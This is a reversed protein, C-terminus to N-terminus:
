LYFVSRTQVTSTTGQNNEITEEGDNGCLQSNPTIPRVPPANELLGSPLTVHTAVSSISISSVDESLKNIVAEEQKGNDNDNATAARKGMVIGVSPLFDSENCQQVLQSTAHENTHQQYSNYDSGESDLTDSDSDVAVSQLQGSGVLFKPKELAEWCKDVKDNGGKDADNINVTVGAQYTITKTKFVKRTKNRNPSLTDSLKSVQDAMNSIAKSSM